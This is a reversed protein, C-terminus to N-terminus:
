VYMLGCAVKNLSGQVSCLTAHWYAYQNACAQCLYLRDVFLFVYRQRINGAQRQIVREDDVIIDVMHVPKYVRM